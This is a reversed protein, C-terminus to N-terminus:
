VNAPETYFTTYRKVKKNGVNIIDKLYRELIINTIFKKVQKLYKKDKKIIKNINVKKMLRKMDAEFDFVVDDRDNLNGMAFEEGLKVLQNDSLDKNQLM